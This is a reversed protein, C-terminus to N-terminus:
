GNHYFTVSGNQVVISIRDGEKIANDDRLLNNLKGKDWLRLYIDLGIGMAVFQGDCGLESHLENGGTIGISPADVCRRQVIVEFYDRNRNVEETTIVTVVTEDAGKRVVTKNKNASLILQDVGDFFNVFSREKSRLTKLDKTKKLALTTLEKPNITAQTKLGQQFGARVGYSSGRLLPSNIMVRAKGRITVGFYYEVDPALPINSYLKQGLSFMDDSITVTFFFSSIHRWGVM